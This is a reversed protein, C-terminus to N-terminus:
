AAQGQALKRGSGLLILAGGTTLLFTAAEPTPDVPPSDQSSAGYWFDHVTVDSGATGSITMSTIDVSSSFGFWGASLASFTEGDSLLINFSSGLVDILMADEGGSPTTVTVSTGYLGAPGSPAWGMSSGKFNFNNQTWGTAPISGTGSPAIEGPSGSVSAIWNAYASGSGYGTPGEFPTGVSTAGATAALLLAAGIAIAGFRLRYSM